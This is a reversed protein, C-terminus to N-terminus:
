VNEAKTEGVLEKGEGGVSEGDVKKVGLTLRLLAADFHKKDLEFGKGVRQMEYAAVLTSASGAFPDLVIEGPLSSLEILKRLLSTPKEAPHIKKQPPVRSEIFVNSYGSKSLGRSGKRLFLFPEWNSAFSKDGGGSGAGGTKVWVNPLPNVAFGAAEAMRVMDQYHQAGFFLYMHSDKHLVRYCEKLMKEVMDKVDFPHDEYIGEEGWAERSKMTSDLNIGYPPDAIVLHVTGEGMERMGELCDGLKLADQNFEVNTRKVLEARLGREMLRQLQKYADGKSKAKLLEPFEEMVQALKIDQSVGGVSEGLAKATDRLSWGGGHGRIASGYLKRKISDIDRKAKVEEQWSFDKRQLNEEIEIEKQTLEDADKLLRIEIEGIGLREHARFRREGAVLQFRFPSGDEPEINTVVIPHYLGHRQIDVALADIDGFDDRYRDERVKIESLKVKM